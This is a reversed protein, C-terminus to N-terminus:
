PVKQKHQEAEDKVDLLEVVRHHERHKEHHDQDHTIQRIPHTPALHRFAVSLSPSSDKILQRMLDNKSCIQVASELSCYVKDFGNESGFYNKQEPLFIM